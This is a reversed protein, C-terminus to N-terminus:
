RVSAMPRAQSCTGLELRDEAVFVVSPGDIILAATASEYKVGIGAHKRRLDYSRDIFNVRASAGGREVVLNQRGECVYRVTMPPVAANATGLVSVVTLLLGGAIGIRLDRVM